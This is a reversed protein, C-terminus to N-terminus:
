PRWAPDRGVFGLYRDLPPADDPVPVEAGFSEPGRYEPLLYRRAADLALAAGAAPFDPEQGTAVALDWGHALEEMATMAFSMAGPSTGGFYSSVEREIGHTRWGDMIVAAATAYRRRAEDLDAVHVSMPDGEYTTDAASSAFVEVWAVLHDILAGVDFGDNPTPGALQDPRVAGLVSATRGLIAALLDFQQDDHMAGRYSGSMPRTKSSDSM